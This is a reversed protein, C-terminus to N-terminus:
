DLKRILKTLNASTLHRQLLSSLSTSLEPVAVDDARGDGGFKV